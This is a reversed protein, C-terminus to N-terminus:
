YSRRRKGCGNFGLQQAATHGRRLRLELHFSLHLENLAARQQRVVGGVQQLLPQQQVQATRMRQHLGPARLEVQDCARHAGVAGHLERVKEGPQLFVQVYGSSGALPLVVLASSM